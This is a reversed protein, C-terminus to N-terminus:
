SNGAEASPRQAGRTSLAPLFSSLDNMVLTRGADSTELTQLFRLTALAPQGEILRAANALNRLAASEARARELTAQGEQRAKLVENFAKRLEGPLMIDRVEAGHVCIGLAAAQPAIQEVLQAGIAVRKGLLAEVTQEAVISRVALQAANYVHGSANDASHMAKAPDTYQITLVVSVKVGVNDSTLVEQGPVQLLTKRSDLYAVRFNRGWRIYRGASLTEQIKGNHYLLGAFGETVTYENRFHSRLAVATIFLVVGLILSTAFIDQATIMITHTTPKTPVQCPM